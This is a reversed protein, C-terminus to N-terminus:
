SFSLRYKIEDISLNELQKFSQDKMENEHVFAYFDRAVIDTSDYYSNEKKEQLEILMKEFAIKESTNKFKENELNKTKM